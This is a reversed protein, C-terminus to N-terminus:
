LTAWLLLTALAVATGALPAFWRRPMPPADPGALKTAILTAVSGQPTALSGVALGISAAYASPGAALLAGAVGSLPLNNALASVAGIGMAIILLGGLGPAIRAPMRLGLAGIVILLGAIQVAVRWPIILRLRERRTGLAVAVAAAFPWWPALALLPATWAVLAAAALSLAAHRESASFPTREARTPRYAVALARRETLAVVIACLAAALLGPGLMHAAFAGASIGLRDILVLNTPNGQPVAISAGNAVAIVGFLLPALPAAHRRALVLVLPVMLVVAGDLSVAATLGACLACVAAYLALSSGRARMALQAATREALGSREVLAALSLAATLFAVLPVAVALAPAVRAGFAVDVGAAVALLLASLASHPRWGLAGVGIVAVIARPILM